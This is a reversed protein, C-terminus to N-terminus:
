LVMFIFDDIVDNKESTVHLSWKGTVHCLQIGIKNLRYFMEKYKCVCNFCKKRHVKTEM